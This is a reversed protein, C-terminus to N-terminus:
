RFKPWRTLKISLTLTMANLIGFHLSFFFLSYIPAFSTNNACAGCPLIGLSLFFFSKLILAVIFISVIEDPKTSAHRMRFTLCGEGDFLRVCAGFLFDIFFQSNHWFSSSFFFLEHCFYIFEIRICNHKTCNMLPISSVSFLMRKTKFADAEAIHQNQNEKNTCAVCLWFTIIKM